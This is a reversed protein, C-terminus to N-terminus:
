RKKSKKQNNQPAQHPTQPMMHVQKKNALEKGSKSKSYVFVGVLSVLTTGSIVGGFWPQGNVAAYLGCGGFFLAIILGFWQGREEQTQQSRVVTSELALRHASQAEAMTMIRDAGNPIIANYAALEDPEPLMGSRYSIQTQEIIVKSLKPRQGEPIAKLIEPAKEQILNELTKPTKPQEKLPPTLPAPVSGSEPPKNESM